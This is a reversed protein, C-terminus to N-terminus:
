ALALWALSPLAVAAFAGAALGLRRGTGGAREAPIALAAAALAWYGPKVLGLFLAAALVAGLDRPPAAGSGCAARLVAATFLLAAANTMPDASVSAASAVAMPTLSLLALTWRRAPALQLALASLAVWAVLGGFRGLYILGAPSVGLWRGPAVGLLHPLYAVPPYTGANAINSRRAPDLPQDLLAAMEALTRPPPPDPWREGNALRHLESISKPITARPPERGPVDFRGESMVWVRSLHRTEDPAAGPPLLLAIALGGALALAVFVRTPESLSRLLRM